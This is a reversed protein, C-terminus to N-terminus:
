LEESLDLGRRQYVVTAVGCAVATWGLAVSWALGRGLSLDYVLSRFVEVFVALPQYAIISRLPLGHWRLPVQDLPYIIPTLYFQLQVVIGVLYSTDRFHVNLVSFILSTGAVFAAFLALWAPLVLWSLGLNGLVLLIAGLTALEIFSQYFTALASGFVSAYAPFYIKKMLPGNGLLSAISTGLTVSYMGWTVLGTFLWVFFPGNEGNGMHPARGHFIGGFVISYTVLTAIPVVLSWAFGLLTGKYRARLDRRAFNLVLSRYYWFGPQPRGTVTILGLGSRLPPTRADHSTTERAPIV